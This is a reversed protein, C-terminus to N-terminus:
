GWITLSSLREARPYFLYPSLDKFIVAQEGCKRISRVRVKANATAKEKSRAALTLEVLAAVVKGRMVKSPGVTDEIANSAAPDEKVTEASRTETM